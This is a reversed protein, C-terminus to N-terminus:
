WWQWLLYCFSALFGFYTLCLFTWLWQGAQSTNGRAGRPHSTQAWDMFVGVLRQGEEHWMGVLICNQLGKIEIIRRTCGSPLGSVWLLIFRWTEPCYMVTFIGLCGCGWLLLTQSASGCSSGPFGWSCAEDWVGTIWMTWASPKEWSLKALALFKCILLFYTINIVKELTSGLRLASM